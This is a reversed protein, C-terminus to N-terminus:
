NKEKISKVVTRIGQAINVLAEDLNDWTNVPKGDKPLAQLKGFPSNQWNEVPRLIIPIVMAEGVQHREMARKMELDYCYDSAIFNTSILLLIVQAADLHTDIQNKWETGPMIKRDHWANIVGQRQMLKLHKALKDRLEEDEHSYSFFIEVADSSPSKTTKPQNPTSQPTNSLLQAKIAKLQRNDPNDNLAAELFEELKGKAQAWKILNFVVQQYNNGGAIATLNEELELDVMMELDGQSLYASIIAQLLAKRQSGSLEM